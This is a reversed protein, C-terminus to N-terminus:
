NHHDFKNEINNWVQVVDNKEIELAYETLIFESAKRGKEILPKPDSKYDNIVQELTKAFEQGLKGSGGFIAVVKNKMSFLDLINSSKNYKKSM